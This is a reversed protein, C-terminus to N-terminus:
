KDRLLSPLFASKFTKVVKLEGKHPGSKMEELDETGFVKAFEQLFKLINQTYRIVAFDTILSHMDTVDFLMNTQKLLKGIRNSLLNYKKEDEPDDGWMGRVISAM